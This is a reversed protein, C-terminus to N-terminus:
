GVQNSVAYLTIEASIYFSNRVLSCIGALYIDINELDNSYCNKKIALSYFNIHRRVSNRTLQGGCVVFGNKNFM